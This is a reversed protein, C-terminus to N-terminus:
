CKKFSHKIEPYKKNCELVWSKAVSITVPSGHGSCKNSEWYIIYMDM